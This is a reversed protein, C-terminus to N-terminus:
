GQSGKRYVIPIFEFCMDSAKWLLCKYNAVPDGYAIKFWDGHGQYHELDDDSARSLYVIGPRPHWFYGYSHTSVCFGVKSSALVDITETTAAWHLVNRGCTINAGDIEM